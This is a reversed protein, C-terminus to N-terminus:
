PGDFEYRLGLNITLKSSLRYDDQIYGAFYNLNEHFITDTTSITTSAPLGLLLDPLGSGSQGPVSTFMGNFTYKGSLVGPTYYSYAYRMFEGGVSLFHRGLQLAMADNLIYHGDKHPCLFGSRLRDTALNNGLPISHTSSGQLGISSVNSTTPSSFNEESVYGVRAENSIRPSLIHSM